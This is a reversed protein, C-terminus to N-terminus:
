GLRKGNMFYIFSLCVTKVQLLKRLMVISRGGKIYEDTFDIKSTIM